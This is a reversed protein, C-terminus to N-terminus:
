NAKQLVEEFTDFSDVFTADNERFGMHNDTAIMIKFGSEQM